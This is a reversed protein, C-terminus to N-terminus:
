PSVVQAPAPPAAESAAGRWLEYQERPSEVWHGVLAGDARRVVGNAKGQRTATPALDDLVALVEAQLDGGHVHWGSVPLDAFARVIGAADAHATFPVAVGAVQDAAFWANYERLREPEAHPGLLGFVHTQPGLRDARYLDRMDALSL